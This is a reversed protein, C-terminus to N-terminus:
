GYQVVRHLRPSFWGHVRQSGVVVDFYKQDDAEAIMPCGIGIVAHATSPSITGHFGGCSGCSTTREADANPILTGNCAGCTETTTM